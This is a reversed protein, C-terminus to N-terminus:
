KSIWEFFSSCRCGRHKGVPFRPSEHRCWVVSSLSPSRHTSPSAQGWRGRPGLAGEMSDHPRWGVCQPPQVEFGLLSTGRATPASCLTCTPNHPGPARAVIGPKPHSLWVHRVGLVLTLPAQGWTHECGRRPMRSDVSSSSVSVSPQFRGSDM